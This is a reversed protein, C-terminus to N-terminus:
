KACRRRKRAPVTGAEPGNTWAEEVNVPNIRVNGNKSKRKAARCERCWSQTYVKGNQRRLGFGEKIAEV